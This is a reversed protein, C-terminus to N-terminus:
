MLYIRDADVASSLRHSIFIVSRGRAARMMNEFMKHEAIPDLASSPEDLIICPADEAFVRALSVKQAEGGSLNIGHDDFERTLTSDLGQPLAEIKDWAGSERLADTIRQEDGERPPRLRVNDRVSMSFVKFDQFVCSFGDRYSSLRYHRADRGDLMVSGSTPDYLRLLLKVLTTKGSGNLGVLAIHEGARIKM